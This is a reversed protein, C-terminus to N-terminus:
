NAHTHQDAIKKRLGANFEQFGALIHEYFALDIDRWEEERFGGQILERCNKALRISLAHIVTRTDHRDIFSMTCGEWTELPPIVALIAYVFRSLIVHQPMGPDADIMGMLKLACGLAIEYREEAM